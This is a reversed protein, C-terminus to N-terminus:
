DARLGARIAVPINGFIELVSEMFLLSYFALITVPIAAKVHLGPAVGLLNHGEALARRLLGVSHAQAAVRPVLLEPM